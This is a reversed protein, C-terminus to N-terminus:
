TTLYIPQCGPCSYISGGLFAEKRIIQGCKECPKGATNKSLKTRYGGPHDYLDRETDRGGQATMENLTTVVTKFLAGKDNESLTTVKSKPHLGANYLIDQLVGNGLGPIRQHTALFAKLPLKESGADFLGLFYDQSFGPTLPSPKQVAVEYYPNENKGIESLYLGGYMTAAASLATGDTFEILLQHKEPRRSGKPHHRLSIGDTFVLMVDDLDIEVMGARAIAKIVTKEALLAPYRQPDGYYWAFGHPTKAAITLQVKKGAISESIQRSIVAAEPIELM